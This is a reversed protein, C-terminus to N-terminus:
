HSMLVPLDLHHLVHRTAGGFVMESFRSHGYAGL